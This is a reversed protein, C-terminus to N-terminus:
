GWFIGELASEVESRTKLHRESRLFPHSGCAQFWFDSLEFCSRLADITTLQQCENMYIKKLQQCQSLGNLNTM